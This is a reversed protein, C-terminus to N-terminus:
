IHPYFITYICFTTDVQCTNAKGMSKIYVMAASFQWKDERSKLENNKREYNWVSQAKKNNREKKM